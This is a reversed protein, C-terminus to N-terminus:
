PFRFELDDDTDFIRDPGSSFLSYGTGSQLRAYGLFEGDYPDRPMDTDPYRQMWLQILGSLDVPLERGAALEANLMASIRGVADELVQEPNDPLPPLEDVDSIPQTAAPLSEFFAALRDKFVTSVLVGALIFPLFILGIIGIARLAGASSVPSGEGLSPDLAHLRKALPPHTSMWTGLTMLGTNLDQRQRVLAARNVHPAHKGGAALITLGLLAGDHDGACAYGFRDCTFERARSLASGLFPVISAPMILYRWKLHGSRIHGLEHGIIMDRAGENDGCAELLDSFLVLVHRRLFKAAFANLSGGAQMLYAEPVRNMEMRRALEEVRAYLEPFQDPGLRVASGRVHAIFVMNMVAFFVVFMLVYILGIISAALAVWALISFLVSFIFLPYESPWSEVRIPEHSRTSGVAAVSTTM